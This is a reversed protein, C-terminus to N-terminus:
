SPWRVAYCLLTLCMSIEILAGYVDGTMHVGRHRVYLPLCVSALAVLAMSTLAPLAALTALPALIIVAIVGAILTDRRARTPTAANAGLGTTAPSTTLAITAALRSLTGAVILAVAMRSVSLSALASWETLLVLAIAVVGFSGLRPDKLIAGIREPSSGGLFADASDGVGDLHLAGSVLVVTALVLAAVVFPSVLHAAGVGVVGAMAGVAAGVLPFYRRGNGAAPLRHTSSLPIITLFTLASALHGMEVTIEDRPELPRDNRDGSPNNPAEHSPMASIPALTVRGM